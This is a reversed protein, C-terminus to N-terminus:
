ATAERSEEIIKDIRKLQELSLSQKKTTSCFWYYMKDILLEKEIISKCEEKTKYIEWSTDKFKMFNLDIIRMEFDDSHVIMYKRGIKSIKHEIIKYDDHFQNTKISFLSDGIRFDSKKNM